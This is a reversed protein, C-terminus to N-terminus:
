CNEYKLTVCAGTDLEDYISFDMGNLLPSSTGLLVPWFRHNRFFRSRHIEM